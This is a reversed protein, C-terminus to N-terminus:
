GNKNGDVVELLTRFAVSKNQYRDIYEKQLAPAHEMQYEHLDKMNEARYQIAYTIGEEQHSILKCLQYDVFKGTAMVDPIHQEKMWVLWDEQIEQEINVTVNYIIM